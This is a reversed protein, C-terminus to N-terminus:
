IIGEELYLLLCHSGQFLSIADGAEMHLLRINQIKTQKLILFNGLFSSFGLSTPKRSKIACRLFAPLDTLFKREFSFKPTKNSYNADIEYPISYDVENPYVSISSFCFSKSDSSGEFPSSNLNDPLCLKVQASLVSLVLFSSPSICSQELNKVCTLALDANCAQFHCKEEKKGGLVIM